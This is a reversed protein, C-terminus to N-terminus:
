DEEGLLRGYCRSVPSDAYVGFGAVPLYGQREYFAMAEPQATGTELVVRDYGRARAEREVARLLLAAYGRRRHDPGVYMRKLEGDCWGGDPREQPPGDLFAPPAAHELRRLGACGVAEGDARLVVFVGHPPAFQAADVPTADESGYRRAIDRSLEAVLRAADPHDFPVTEVRVTGVPAASTPRGPSAPINM